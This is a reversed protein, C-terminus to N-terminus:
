HQKQMLCHGPVVDVKKDKLVDMAEGPSSCLVVSYGHKEFLLSTFRLVDPDDDVVLVIGYQKLNM